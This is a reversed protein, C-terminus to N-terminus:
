WRGLITLMVTVFVVYFSFLFFCSIQIFKLLDLVINILSNNIKKFIIFGYLVETCVLQAMMAEHEATALGTELSKSARSLVCAM